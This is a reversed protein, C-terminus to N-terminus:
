IMFYLFPNSDGMIRAGLSLGTVIKTEKGFKKLHWKADTNTQSPQWFLTSGSQTSTLIISIWFGSAPLGLDPHWCTRSGQSGPPRKRVPDEHDKGACTHTGTPCRPKGRLLVGPLSFSPGGEHGWKWKIVKQFATQLCPCMGLHWPALAWHIFKLPCLDAWWGMQSCSGWINM